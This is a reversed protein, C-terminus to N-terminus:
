VLPVGRHVFGCAYLPCKNSPTFAWEKKSSFKTEKKSFVKHRNTLHQSSPARELGSGVKSNWPALDEKEGWVCDQGVSHRRGPSLRSGGVLSKPSPQIPIKTIAARECHLRNSTEQHQKAGARGQGPGGAELPIQSHLNRPELMRQSFKGKEPRGTTSHGVRPKVEPGSKTTRSNSAQM